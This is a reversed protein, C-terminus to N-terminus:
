INEDGYRQMLDQITLEEDGENLCVELPLFEEPESEECESDSGLDIVEIEFPKTKSAKSRSGRCPIKGSSQWVSCTGLGPTRSSINSSHGGDEKQNKCHSQFHIEFNFAHAFRKGCNTCLFPKQTTHAREHAVLSSSDTYVKGCEKCSYTPPHAMIHNKFSGLQIYVKGCKRCEYSKEQSHIKYHTEVCSENSFKRECVGCEFKNIGTDNMRHYNFYFEMKFTKGCDQCEYLKKGTHMRAHIRLAQPASFRRGCEFCEYIAHQINENM